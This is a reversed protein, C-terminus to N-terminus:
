FLPLFGFLRLFFAIPFDYFRLRSKTKTVLVADKKWGEIIAELDRVMDVEHFFLGAEINWNFSLLDLNQSGITGERRDVVMAKAHNMGHTFYCQAGISTLFASFSRNVADITKHDTSEPLLIEVRVGRILAQHLEAIFWRPPLLYPTVFTISEKAGRIREIYHKRFEQSRKGIGHDIFWLKAKRVPGLRPALTALTGKGGSNRYARAFSRMTTEVIHGRVEVQLDKWRAYNKGVNVGGIFASTEDIILVKRHMRQFFFSHFLVEAGAERLSATLTNGFTFSGVIDLIAIVKVGRKAAAELTELFERGRVDDGVIYMELYVSKKALAISAQMAEWAKESTTFIKYKM